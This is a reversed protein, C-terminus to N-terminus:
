VNNMTAAAHSTVQRTGWNGRRLVFARAGTITSYPKRRKIGCHSTSQPAAAGPRIVNKPYNLSAPASRIHTAYLKPYSFFCAPCLFVAPGGNPAGGDLPLFTQNCLQVLPM